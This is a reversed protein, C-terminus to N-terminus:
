QVRTPLGVTTTRDVISRRPMHTLYLLSARSMSILQPVHLSVQLALVPPESRLLKTDSTTRFPSKQYPNRPKSVSSCATQGLHRSSKECYPCTLYPGSAPPAGIESPIAYREKTVRFPKKCYLCTVESPLKGTMGM